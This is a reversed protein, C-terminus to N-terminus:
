SVRRIQLDAYVETGWSGPKGLGNTAWASGVRYELRLDSTVALTFRGVIPARAEAYGADHAWAMQGLVKVAAGTVDYLRMQHNFGVYAPANGVAEYGGAPLGTIVNAVLTVGLENTVITNLVRTQWSGATSSGGATGSAQEERVHLLPLASSPAPVRKDVIQTSGIATDNAPVYVAALVVSSAPITPFVPTAAATGATVSKTGSSNVVVLDFRPNTAHATTITVNGATVTAQVGLVAVVGAAVALTMDPSGQATVAAGSVVGTGAYGAVLIEIDKSDPAAQAAVSADAENPISFAM